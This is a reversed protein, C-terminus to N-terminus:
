RLRILPDGFLIWTRRIDLNTVAQKAGMVAEGITLGQGNFLLRVLERNMPVQGVPDTLGSSTWVAIAGGREAKLFTEALSESYPDQFFGNLCTM